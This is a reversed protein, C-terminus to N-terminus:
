RRQRSEHGSLAVRSGPFHPSPRRGVPTAIGVSHAPWRHQPPPRRTGVTARPRAEPWKLGGRHPVVSRSCWSEPVSSRLAALAPSSRRAFTEISHHAGGSHARASTTFQKVFCKGFVNIQVQRAFHAVMICQLGSTAPGKKYPVPAVRPLAPLPRPRRELATYQYAPAVDWANTRNIRLGPRRPRLGSM